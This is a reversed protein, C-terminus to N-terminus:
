RPKPLFTRHRTRSSGHSRHLPASVCSDLQFTYFSGVKKSADPGTVFHYRFQTVLEKAMVSIPLLIVPKQAAKIEPDQLVLLKEFCDKWEQSLGEPLLPVPEQLQRPWKTKELVAEFEDSMIQKMELWLNNVTDDVYKVIHSAAGEAAAQAIPLQIALEKLRAYPELAAKPNSPLHKRAEVTTDDVEKMLNMYLQAMEVRRLKEMPGKLRETAEKPDNTSTLLTLRSQINAHQEGFKKDREKM